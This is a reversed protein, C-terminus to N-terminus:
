KQVMRTSVGFRAKVSVAQLAAGIQELAQVAELVDEPSPHRPVAEAAPTLEALYAHRIVQRRACDLLLRKAKTTLFARPERIDLM